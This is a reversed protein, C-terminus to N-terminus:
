GSGDEDSRSGNFNKTLEEVDEDTLRSLRQCVEFLRQLAAASKGGVLAVDRDQFIRNGEEDVVSRVILKARLDSYDMRTRRRGTGSGEERILSAEWADRETGTMGRVKVVAGTGWEPVEVYEYQRDDHLLIDDRSLLRRTPAELEGPEFDTM